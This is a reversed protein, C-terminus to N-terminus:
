EVLEPYQLKFMEFGGDVSFAQSFGQEIFFETAPQSSNGHYCFVLLPAAKDASAIFSQASNNDIHTAKQVHGSQFSVLDRIDVVQAGQEIYEKAQNIKIRPVSM